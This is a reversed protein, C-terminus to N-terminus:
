FTDELLASDDDTTSARRHYHQEQRKSDIYHREMCRCRCCCCCCRLMTWFKHNIYSLVTDHWGYVISNLFGSLPWLLSCVLTMPFTVTTNQVGALLVINLIIEPGWSLIFVLMYGTLRLRLMKVKSREYSAFNGTQQLKRAQLVLVVTYIVICYAISAMVIGWFVYNWVYADSIFWCSYLGMGMRKWVISCIAYPLPLMWGCIFYMWLKVPSKTPITLDGFRTIQAHTFRYLMETAIFVIWLCSCLFFYLKIPGMVICVWESVGMLSLSIIWQLSNLFEVLSLWFVLALFFTRRLINKLYCFMIFLSGLMSLIVSFYTVTTLAIVQGENWAPEDLATVVPRLPTPPAAVLGHSDEIWGREGSYTERQEALWVLWGVINPPGGSAFLPSVM